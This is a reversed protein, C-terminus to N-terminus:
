HATDHDICKIAYTQLPTFITRFVACTVKHLLDAIIERYMAEKSQLVIANDYM